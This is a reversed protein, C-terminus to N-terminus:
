HSSPALTKSMKTADGWFAMPEHAPYPYHGLNLRIAAGRVSIREEVLRRVSIPTGSCINLIGDFQPREVLEALHGAVTEVALYDRLQEGDSMNFVKDGREISADLQALLSCPNQGTGYMYFPRAWQLTFQIDKQLMELARRLIDKSLAYPTVPHTDMEESLPGNRLGYEFCTGTVLVQRVGLQILLKLFQFSAPFAAELHRMSYYDPLYPWALHMVADFSDPPVKLIFAPELIDGCIIDTDRLLPCSLIKTQDRVVVTVNHGREILRRIVHSGVFGTAGTLLIKM